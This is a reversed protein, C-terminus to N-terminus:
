WSAKRVGPIMGAMAYKRLMSRGLKFRRYVGRARGTLQCRNRLRKKLGNRPITELQGQLTEIEAVLVEFNAKPDELKAYCAQLKEKIQTYKNSYKAVLHERKKEREVLSLKAM